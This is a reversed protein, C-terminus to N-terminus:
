EAQLALDGLEGRQLQQIKQALKPLARQFRMRVADASGGIRSAIEAFELEDWQRLVIVEREEPDMLELALRVWAQWQKKELARDPQISDRSGADLELVTEEPLPRERAVQRRRRTFFDHRDRLVNEAIRGLLFRLHAENSVQFRPGYRLFEVLSDQVVDVTEEKARVLGGLRKKVHAQIWPLHLHLLEQLADEDGGNWRRLLMTTEPVNNGM